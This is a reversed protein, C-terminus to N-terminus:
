AASGGPPHHKQAHIGPGKPITCHPTGKPSIAATRSQSPITASTCFRRQLIGPPRDFAEGACTGLDAPPAQPSQEALAETAGLAKEGFV